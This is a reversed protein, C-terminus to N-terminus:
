FDVSICVTLSVRVGELMCLDTAGEVCFVPVGCKDQTRSLNKVDPIDRREASMIIADHLSPVLACYSVYMLFHDSKQLFTLHSKTVGGTGIAMSEKALRKSAPREYAEILVARLASDDTKSM